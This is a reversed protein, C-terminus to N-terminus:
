PKVKVGARHCDCFGFSQAYTTLLGVGAGVSGFMLCGFGTAGLSQLLAFSSGASVSGLASQWSAAISGATIGGFDFGIIPLLLAGAVGVVGTFGLATFIRRRLVQLNAESPVTKGCISCWDSYALMSLGQVKISRFRSRNIFKSTRRGSRYRSLFQYFDVAATSGNPM